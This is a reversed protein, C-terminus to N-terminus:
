IVIRVLGGRVREVEGAEFDDLGLLMVLKMNM